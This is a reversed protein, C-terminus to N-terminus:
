APVGLCVNGLRPLPTGPGCLCSVSEVSGAWRLWPKLLATVAQALADNDCGRM